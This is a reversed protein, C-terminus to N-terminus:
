IILKTKKEIWIRASDLLGTLYTQTESFNTQLGKSASGAEFSGAVIISAVATIDDDKSSYYFPKENDPQLYQNLSFISWFYRIQAKMAKQIDITSPTVINIKTAVEEAISVIEELFDNTKQKLYYPRYQNKKSEIIEMLGKEIESSMEPTKIESKSLNPKKTEEDKPIYKKKSNESTAKISL